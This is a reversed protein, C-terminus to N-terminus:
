TDHLNHKSKITSRIRLQHSSKPLKLIGHDFRSHLELERSTEAAVGFARRGLSLTVCQYMRKLAVRSLNLM